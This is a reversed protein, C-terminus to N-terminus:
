AKIYTTRGKEFNVVLEDDLPMGSRMLHYAVLACPLSEFSCLFWASAAADYEIMYMQVLARWEKRDKSCQLACGGGDNRQQGFGVESCTDLRLTPRRRVRGGSVEAMLVSRALRYEGM